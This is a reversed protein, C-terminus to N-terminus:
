ICFLQLFFFGLIFKEVAENNDVQMFKKDHKKTM